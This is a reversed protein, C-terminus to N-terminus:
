HPEPRSQMSALADVTNRESTPSTSSDPCQRRPSYQWSGSLLQTKGAMYIGGGYDTIREICCDLLVNEQGGGSVFVVMCKLYVSGGRM